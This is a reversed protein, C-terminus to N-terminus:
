IDEPLESLHYHKSRNKTINSFDEIKISPFNENKPLNEEFDISQTRIYHIKHEITNQKSKLAELTQDLKKGTEFFDASYRMTNIVGENVLSKKELKSHLFNVRKKFKEVLDRSTKLVFISHSLLPAELSISHAQKKVQMYTKHELFTISTKLFSYYHSLDALQSRKKALETGKGTIENLKECNQNFVRQKEDRIGRLFQLHKRINDIKKSEHMTIQDPCQHNVFRL